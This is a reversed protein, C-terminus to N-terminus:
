GTKDLYNPSPGKRRNYGRLAQKGRGIVVLEARLRERSWTAQSIIAANKGMIIQVFVEQFIRFEELQKEMALPLGKEEVPLRQKLEAHFTLLTELLTQRKREFDRIEVPDLDAFRALFDSTVRVTESFLKKGRSIEKALEDSNM